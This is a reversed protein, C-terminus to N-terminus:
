HSIVSGLFSGQYRPCYMLLSLQNPSMLCAPVVVVVVVVVLMRVVVVELVLVVVVLMMM